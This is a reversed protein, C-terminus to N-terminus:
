SRKETKVQKKSVNPKRAYRHAVTPTFAFQKGRGVTYETLAGVSVLKALIESAHPRSIKLTEAIGTVTMPIGHKDRILTDGRTVCAALRWLVGQEQLTLHEALGIIARHFVQTFAAAM